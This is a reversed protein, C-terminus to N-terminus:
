SPRNQGPRREEEADDVARDRHLRHAQGLPPPLDRLRVARSRLRSPLTRGTSQLKCIVQDLAALDGTIQGYHRVEANRGDDATAVDITAKHVDLGVFLETASTASMTIKKM